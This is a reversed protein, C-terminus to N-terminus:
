TLSVIFGISALIAVIAPINEFRDGARLHFVLAGIMLAIVGAAALIGLWELSSVFIALIIAIAALVEVIGIPIRLHDYGLREAQEIGDKNGVLKMGGLGGMGLVLLIGSVWMLATM